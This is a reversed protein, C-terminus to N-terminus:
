GNHDRNPNVSSPFLAIIGSLWLGHSQFNPQKWLELTWTQRGFIHLETAGHANKWVM